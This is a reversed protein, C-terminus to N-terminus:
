QNSSVEGFGESRYVKYEGGSAEDIIYCELDDNATVLALAEKAPLTMLATAWADATACDPALVTVSAPGDAPKGTTPDLIHSFEVGEYEFKQVYNGSTAVSGRELEFTGWIGKGDPHAIALVWPKGRVDGGWCRVEGGAEVLGGGAGSEMMEEVAKDVAWGKAVGSLDLTMGDVPKTVLNLEESIEFASYDIFPLAEEIEEDPPIRPENTKLGYLEVLPMIAPNFRGGTDDAVAFSFMLLEIFQASVKTIDEGLAANIRSIDSAPDYTSAITNVYDIALFSNEAARRATLEDAALATIGIDTGMAEYGESLEVYESEEGKGCGFAILLSVAFLVTILAYYKPTTEM